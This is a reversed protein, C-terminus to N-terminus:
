LRVSLDTLSHDSVCLSQVYVLHWHKTQTTFGFPQNYKTCVIPCTVRNYPHVPPECLSLVISPATSCSPTMNSGSQSSCPVPASSCALVCRMWAILVLIHVVVIFFVTSPLIMAEQGWRSIYKLFRELDFLFNHFPITSHVLCNYLYFYVNILIVLSRTHIAYLSICQLLCCRHFAINSRVRKLRSYTM